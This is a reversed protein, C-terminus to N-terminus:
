DPDSWTALARQCAEQVIDMRGVRLSGEVDVVLVFARNALADIVLDGVLLTVQSALFVAHASNM